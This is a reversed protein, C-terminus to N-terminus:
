LCFPLTDKDLCHCVSDCQFDKAMWTAMVVVMVLVSQFCRSVISALKLTTTIPQVAVQFNSQVYMCAHNSIMYARESYRCTDSTVSIDAENGCGGGRTNM